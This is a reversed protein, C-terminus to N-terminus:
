LEIDKAWQKRFMSSYKEYLLPWNLNDLGPVKSNILDMEQLLWEWNGSFALLCYFLIYNKIPLKDFEIPQGSDDLPLLEIIDNRHIIRIVLRELKYAEQKEVMKYNRKNMGYIFYYPMHKDWLQEWPLKSKNLPILERIIQATPLKHYCQVKQGLQSQILPGLIKNVQNYSYVLM